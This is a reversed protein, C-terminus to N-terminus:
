SVNMIILIGSSIVNSVVSDLTVNSSMNRVISEFKDVPSKDILNASSDVGLLATFDARISNLTQMAMTDGAKYDRFMDNNSSTNSFVDFNWHSCLQSFKEDYTVKNNPFFSLM